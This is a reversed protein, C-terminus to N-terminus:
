RAKTRIKRRFQGNSDRPIALSRARRREYEANEELRQMRIAKLHPRREGSLRSAIRQQRRGPHADDEMIDLAERYITKWIVRGLWPKPFKPIPHGKRTKRKMKM